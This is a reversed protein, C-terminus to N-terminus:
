KRTTESPLPGLLYTAPHKRGVQIRELAYTSLRISQKLEPSWPCWPDALADNLQAIAEELTM